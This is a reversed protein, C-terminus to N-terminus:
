FNPKIIEDPPIPIFRYRTGNPRKIFICDQIAFEDQGGSDVSPQTEELLKMRELAAARVQLENEYEGDLSYYEGEFADYGIIKWMEKM